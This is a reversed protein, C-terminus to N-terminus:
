PEVVESIAPEVVFLLEGLAVQDGVAASVTTVVGDFPAKLTLEMKMAEMVGLADGSVVQQGEDVQVLLVSGPMPAAVTGDSVAATAGARFVDPRGFSWTQGQYAVLVRHPEVVVHGAILEGEVELRQRDDRCGGDRVPAADGAVDIWGEAPSVLLTRRDLPDSPNALEVVM